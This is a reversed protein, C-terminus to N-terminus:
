GAHPEPVEEEDELYYVFQPTGDKLIRWVRRGQSKFPIEGDWVESPHSSIVNEMDEDGEELSRTIKFSDTFISPKHIVSNPTTPISGVAKETYVLREVM